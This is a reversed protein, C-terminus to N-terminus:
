EKKWRLIIESENPLLKAVNENLPLPNMDDEEKAETESSNQFKFALLNQFFIFNILNINLQQQNTIVDSYELGLQQAIHWIAKLISWKRSVVVVQRNGGNEAPLHAFLILQEDADLKLPNKMKLKMIQVRDMRARQEATLIQIIGFINEKDNNRKYRKVNM